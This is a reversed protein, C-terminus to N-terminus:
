YSYLQPSFSNQQKTTKLFCPHGEFHVVTKRVQDVQVLIRLQRLHKQVHDSLAPGGHALEPAAGAMVDLQGSSENPVLVPLFWFTERMVYLMNIYGHFCSEGATDKKTNDGAHLPSDADNRHFIRLGEHISIEDRFGSDEMM